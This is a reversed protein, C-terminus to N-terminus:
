SRGSPTSTACCGLRIMRPRMGCPVADGSLIKSDSRSVGAEVSAGVYHLPDKRGSQLSQASWHGGRGAAAEEARTADKDLQEGLWRVLDATM